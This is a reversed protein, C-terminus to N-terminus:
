GVNDARFPRVPSKPGRALLCRRRLDLQVRKMWWDAKAGGPFHTADLHAPLAGQAEAVTLGPPGDPLVALLAQRMAEHKARDVRTIHDPSTITRVEIRDAQGPM